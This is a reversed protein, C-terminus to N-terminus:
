TAGIGLIVVLLGYLSRNDFKKLVGVSIANPRNVEAKIGSPSSLLEFFEFQGRM